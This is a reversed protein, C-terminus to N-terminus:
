RLSFEVPMAFSFTDGAVDAPMAPLPSARRFLDVAETDLVEHGSPKQLHQSLVAGNRTMTFVVVPVGQDGQRRASAPYRKYRQLHAMLTGRWTAMAHPNSQVGSPAPAGAPKDAPPAPSPPARSPETQKTVAKEPPKPPPPKQVVKPPPPKLDVPPPPEPPPIQITVEIKVEPPPEPTPAVDLLPNRIPAPPEPMDPEPILKSVDQITAELAAPEALDILIPPSPPAGSDAAEPWSLAAAIAGHALLVLAM